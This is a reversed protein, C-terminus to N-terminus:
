TGQELCPEEEKNNLGERVPSDLEVGESLVSELDGEGSDSQNEDYEEDLELAYLCDIILLLRNEKM